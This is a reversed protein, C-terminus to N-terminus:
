SPCPAIDKLKDYLEQLEYDKIKTVKSWEAHLQNWRKIGFELIYWSTYPASDRSSHLFNCPWCMTHCNGDPRVDWRLSLNRRSFLHSNNLQDKSGCTVCSTERARTIESVLKDLKRVLTKRTPKRM